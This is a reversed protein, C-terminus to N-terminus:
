ETNCVLKKRALLSLRRPAETLSSWNVNVANKVPGDDGNLAGCAALLETFNLSSNANQEGLLM